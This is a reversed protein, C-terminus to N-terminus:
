KTRQRLLSAGDVTLMTTIPSRIIQRRSHELKTLLIKVMQQVRVQHIYIISSIYLFSFSIYWHTFHMSTIHHEVYQWVVSSSWLLLDHDYNPSQANPVSVHMLMIIRWWRLLCALWYTLLLSPGHHIDQRPRSTIAEAKGRDRRKQRAEVRSM